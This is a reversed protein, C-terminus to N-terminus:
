KTSKQECHETRKLVSPYDYHNRFTNFGSFIALYFMKEKQIIEVPTRKTIFSDLSCVNELTEQLFWLSRIVVPNNLFQM